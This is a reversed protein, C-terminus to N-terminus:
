CNTRKRGSASWRATPQRYACGTPPIARCALLRVSRRVQRSHVAGVTLSTRKVFNCKTRLQIVKRTPRLKGHSPQRIRCYMLPLFLVPFRRPRIRRCRRLCVWRKAGVAPPSATPQGCACGIRPIVGCAPLRAPRRAQDTHQELQQVPRGPPDATRVIVPDGQPDTSAGWTITARDTLVNTASLPGPISPGAPVPLAVEHVVKNSFLYLRDGERWASIAGDAGEWNVPGRPDRTVTKFDTTYGFILRADGDFHHSEEWAVLYEEDGAANPGLYGIFGPRYVGARGGGGDNQHIIPNEPFYDWNRGDTSTAFGLKPPDGAITSTGRMFALWTGDPLRHVTNYSSAESIWTDSTTPIVPVYPPTTGSLSSDQWITWNHSALDPTTAMATLQYGPVINRIHNFYHFYVFWLQEDENWVVWPSSTHDPDDVNTSAQHFAPVVLNDSRGPVNVNKSYPGTISNSVAVGIGSRPDHHAYFLYYKGDPNPGHDNKVVSPFGVTDGGGSPWNSNKWTSHEWNETQSLIQTTSVVDLPVDGTLDSLDVVQLNNDLMGVLGMALSISEVPQKDAAASFNSVDATSVAPPSLQPADADDDSVSGAALLDRRELPELALQRYHNRHRRM